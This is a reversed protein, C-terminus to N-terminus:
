LQKAYGYMVLLDYTDIIPGLQDLYGEISISKTVKPPNDPVFAHISKPINYPLFQDKGKNLLKVQSLKIPINDLDNIQVLRNEAFCAVSDIPYAAIRYNLCKIVKEDYKSKSQVNLELLAQLPNEASRFHRRCIMSAYSDVAGVILSHPELRSATLKAPYGGGNCREHHQLVIKTSLFNDQHFLLKVFAASSEPHKHIIETEKQTLPTTKCLISHPVHMMGINAFIAAVGMKQLEAMKQKHDAFYDWGIVLSMLGVNKANEFLFEDLVGLSRLHLISRPDRKPDIGDVPDEPRTVAQFEKYAESFIDYAEKRIEFPKEISNEKYALYTNRILRFLASETELGFTYPPPDNVEFPLPFEIYGINNKKLLSITRDTLSAGKKLLLRRAGADGVYIDSPCNLNSNCMDIALRVM